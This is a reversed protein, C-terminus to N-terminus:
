FVNKTVGAKFIQTGMLRVGTDSQMSLTAPETILCQGSQLMVKKGNVTIEVAGEIVTFIVHPIMECIPIEGGPPLEVLITKFEEIQYFVNKQREEYPYAKMTKLDFVKM